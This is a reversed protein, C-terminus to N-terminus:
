GFFIRVIGGIPVAVLFLLFIKVITYIISGKYPTDKKKDYFNGTISYSAKSIPDDIAHNVIGGIFEGKKGFKKFSETPNPSCKDRIVGNVEKFIGYFIHNYKRKM